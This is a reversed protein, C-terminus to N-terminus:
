QLRRHRHFIYEVIALAFGVPACSIDAPNGAVRIDDITWQGDASSRQHKLAHRGIRSAVPEPLDNGLVFNIKEEGCGSRDSRQMAQAVLQHRAM